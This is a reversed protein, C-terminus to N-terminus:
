QEMRFTLTLEPQFALEIRDGDRLQRRGLRFIDEGNLRTHNTSGTGDRGYDQVYYVGDDGTILLHQRSICMTLDPSLKGEFDSREVFTASGALSIELGGQMVLKARPTSGAKPKIADTGTNGPPGAPESDAFYKGCTYCFFSGQNNSRRCRPCIIREEAKEVRAPDLAIGCRICYKDVYENEAECAPCRISLQGSM